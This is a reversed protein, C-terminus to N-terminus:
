IGEWEEIEDCISKKVEAYQLLCQPQYCYHPVSHACVWQNAHKKGAGLCHKKKNKREAM